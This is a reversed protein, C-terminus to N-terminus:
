RSDNLINLLVNISITRNDLKCYKMSVGKDTLDLDPRKFFQTIIESVVRFLQSIITFRGITMFNINGKWECKSSGNKIM